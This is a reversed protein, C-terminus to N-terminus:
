HQAGLGDTRAVHVHAGRDGAMQALGFLDIDRDLLRSLDGADLVDLDALELAEARAVHRRHRRDVAAEDPGQRALVRGLEHQLDLLAPLDQGAPAEAIRVVLQGPPRTGSSTRMRVSNKPSFSTREISPYM